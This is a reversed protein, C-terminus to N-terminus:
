QTCEAIRETGEYTEGQRGFVAGPCERDLQQELSLLGDDRQNPAHHIIVLKEVGACRTIEAGDRWTSHGWNVHAPYNEPTFHGDFALWRVPSPQACLKLFAAREEETSLAWEIDTAILVSHGTGPEDVRYALCGGPHHVACWRIELAGHRLVKDSRSADLTEFEPNAPLMHLQQPWFPPSMIEAFIERVTKGGSAPGMIRLPAGPQYIRPFVPFGAIHDLHYHTMLALLPKDPAGLRDRMSNLGTGFDIIIEEGARGQIFFCTTDGGFIRCAPNTVTSTGRVGGLTIQM